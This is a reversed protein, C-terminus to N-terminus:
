GVDPIPTCYMKMTESHYGDLYFIILGGEVEIKNEFKPLKNIMSRLTAEYRTLHILRRLNFSINDVASYHGSAALSLVTSSALIPVLDDLYRAIGQFRPGVEYTFKCRNILKSM